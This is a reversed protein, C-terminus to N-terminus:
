EAYRVKQKQKIKGQLIAPSVSKSNVMTNGPDLKTGPRPYISLLYQHHSVSQYMFSHMCAHVLENRQM